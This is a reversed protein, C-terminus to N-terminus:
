TWLRVGTKNLNEKLNGEVGAVPLHLCLPLIRRCHGHRGPTEPASTVEPQVIRTVSEGAGNAQSPTV